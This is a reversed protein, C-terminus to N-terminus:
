EFRYGRHRLGSVYRRHGGTQARGGRSSSSSSSPWLSYAAAVGVALLVAAAAVLMVMGQSGEHKVRKSLVERLAVGRMFAPHSDTMERVAERAQTFRGLRMLGVARLYFCSAHADEPM